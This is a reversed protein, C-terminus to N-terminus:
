EAIIETPQGSLPRGKMKVLGLIAIRHLHPPAYAVM